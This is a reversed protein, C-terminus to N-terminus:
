PGARPEVAASPPLGATLRRHSDLAKAIQQALVSVVIMPIWNQLSQTILGSFSGRLVLVSVLGGITLVTPLRMAKPVALSLVLQIFATTTGILAMFLASGAVGYRAVGEAFPSFGLGFGPQWGVMVARAFGEAIDLPRDTWISRPIWLVFSQWLPYADALIYGNLAFNMISFPGSAESLVLSISTDRPLEISFEGSARFISFAPIIFVTAVVAGIMLITITLGFPVRDLRYLACFVALASYIFPAKSFTLLAIGGFALVAGITVLEFRRVNLIVYNVLVSLFTLAVNILFAYNSAGYNGSIKGEYSETSASLESRYFTSIIFIVFIIFISIVKAYKDSLIFSLPYRKTEYHTRSYLETILYYPLSYALYGIFYVIAATNVTSLTVWLTDDLIAVAFEDFGLMVIPTFYSYYVFALFFVSVPDILGRKRFLAIHLLMVGILSAFIM